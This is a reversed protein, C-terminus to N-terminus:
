FSLGLSRRFIEFLGNADAAAIRAFEAEKRGSVSVQKEGEIIRIARGAAFYIRREADAVKEFYFVLRGGTDFLFERSETAASRNTTVAVKLLRDPYPNRERDGYTYYFRATSNYIGVAPYSAGNKNVALETVFVGGGDTDAIRDNTEKYIRRIDDIRKDSQASAEAAAAFIVAAMAAFIKTRKM